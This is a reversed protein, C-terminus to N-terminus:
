SKVKARERAYDGAARRAAAVSGEVRAVARPASRSNSAANNTGELPLTLQLSQRQREVAEALREFWAREREVIRDLFAWCRERIHKKRPVGTTYGLCRLRVTLASVGVAEAVTAMAGSENRPGAKMEARVCDRLLDNIDFNQYSVLSGTM